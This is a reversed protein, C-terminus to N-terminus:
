GLVGVRSQVISLAAVAATESRLILDGLGVVTFGAQKAADLEDPTWGGEPGITVVVHAQPDGPLPLTALSPGATREGLVLKREATRHRDFFDTLALPALLSPVEWREAQQAAELAIRQWRDVQGAERSARPHVVTRHTLLPVIASVGLETAKQVAWDFHDRKLLAQGLVVRPATRPPRHWRELLTARVARRDVADAVARYKTAQEDVLWLEEGPRLRLSDRLHRGLPGTLIASDGHLDSSHVFFVPV